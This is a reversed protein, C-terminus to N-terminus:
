YIAYYNNINTEISTRNTQNINWFIIEQLNQKSYFLSSYSGIINIKDNLSSNLQTTSISNSNKYIFANTSNKTGTLLMQNSTNDTNSSNLYFTTDCQFYYYNDSWLALLYATSLDESLSLMIDGAADRKAVFTHLYDTSYTFQTIKLDDNTGDFKISPKSNTKIITGTDVIKPQNTATTQIADNLNGSQDYWKVVFGDNSGVFTILATEDLNVGIFGIDQEANDSSRRVRIASGSYNSKLKRVSYAVKANPFLDLLLLKSKIPTIAKQAKVIM